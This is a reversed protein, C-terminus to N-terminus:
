KKRKEVYIKVAKRMFAALEPDIKDFNAKFRPDDNYLDVLGLLQEDNPSWFHEMHKRWREICAQIEPSAAGNPMAQTLKRWKENSTKVIEPDYMQMAEEEYKAQEEESFAEFLQKQSMQKKGEIFLITDDVTKELRQLQDIRKKLEKKHNQLAAIVDFLPNNLIKRIMDLSLDLKRYLLIQQLKLIADEGYYRYGNSGIETPKLLDIEDYYHLTRRTVGAMDSLQKVTLM